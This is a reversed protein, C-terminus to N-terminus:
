AALRTLADIADTLDKIRRLLNQDPQALSNELAKLADAASKAKDMISILKEFQISKANKEAQSTVNKIM